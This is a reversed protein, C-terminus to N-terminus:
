KPPLPQHRTGKEQEAITARILGKLMKSRNAHGLLSRMDNYLSPDTLFAGLTGEGARVKGTVVKIDGTAADINQMIERFRKQDMDTVPLKDLVERLTEATERMERLTRRGEEALGALGVSDETILTDGDKLAAVGPAGTTILIYKDGLLGQTQISVKSDARIREQYSKSIKLIVELRGDAREAKPFRVGDVYGVNLGALQVVAGMRLGSVGKFLAYLTYRREFLSREQGIFFVAVMTLALGMTVFLGVSMLTSRKVNM